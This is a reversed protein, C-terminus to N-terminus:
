VVKWEGSQLLEEAKKYKMEKTETGNTITVLDNRGYTKGTTVRPVQTVSVGSTSEALQASQQAQRAERRMREEESVFAGAGLEPLVEAVREKIGSELSQFMRLGDKRYEILPDRQGYARLNVSGRLHEMVDLHELWFFDITQLLLRRVVQYFEEDGMLQKKEALVTARDEHGSVLEHLFADIAERDGMLYKRREEYIAQRQHNLVDDYALVRKRSDFNFGEIRKQATELSKTIM